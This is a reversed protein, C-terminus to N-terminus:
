MIGHETRVRDVVGDLYRDILSPVFRNAVYLLKGPFNPIIIFKRREMDRVAIRAVDDATM